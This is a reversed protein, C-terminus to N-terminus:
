RPTGWFGPGVPRTYDGTAILYGEADTGLPLQPLPRTAPGGTPVAGKLIDFTSQHCPCALLHVTDEYQSVPCGAHTCIRSYAVIGKVAWDKREPPLALLDERVHILNTAGPLEGIHGEPFAVVVSDVPFDDAKIFSGDLRVLRRGRTWPTHYLVESPLRRVLSRLFSIGALAAGGAFVLLAGVLFRRRGVTEGGETVTSVLRSWEEESAAIPPREEEITEHRMYFHVWLTLGIGAAISALAALGGLVQTGAAMFYAAMWYAAILALAAFAAVLFALIALARAASRLKGNGM